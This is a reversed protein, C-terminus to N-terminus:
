LKVYDKQDTEKNKYKEIIQFLDEKHRLNGFGLKGESPLILKFFNSFRESIFSLPFLVVVLSVLIESSM